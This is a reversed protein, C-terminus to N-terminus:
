IEKRIPDIETHTVVPRRNVRQPPPTPTYDETTTPALEDMYSLRLQDPRMVPRIIPPTIYCDPNAEEMAGDTYPPDVPDRQEYNDAIELLEDDDNEDAVLQYMEQGNNARRLRRHAASARLNRITDEIKLWTNSKKLVFQYFHYCLTTVFLTFSIAMSTNALVSQNKQTDKIYFTGFALTAINLLYLTELSGCFTNKYLRNNLLKWGILGFSLVGSSLIPLYIDPAMATVLNHAILAFLLLGVWYRHKPTFPAHYTDMFGIYKTNKTWKMVKSCRPFWQGFFLLVTFLGGAILIIAAAVFRPIHDPTFYQVNGDNLWVIDSTDNPYYLVRYQLAAIIFRLLKSYSLLVLTGLAAVPNRNSLLKSFLDFYKSLIIILFMLFFLYAPFMLQLLVKAQSNMGDYFCIEIGLDLNLWSIFVTLFNNLNPLFIVRNAAVINTYFILGYINGTAITINLILILAVLLIGALAFPILLLLFLNSCEKCNSTALVLSLGPECEGCLVGSRNYACQKNPNSLSIDVPKQVCYDFTCNSVVYGTGNTTNAGRIWINSELKITGNKESCNTILYDQQLVPDCDCKCEIDSQIPKLGIPCTCPLFSIDILQRSIGLNICPGKAYLEMQASSDKSFVNYELETCQNGVTQETQGEKLRGVGSTTIVSSIITANIPNRVQDVAMVSIKYKHGKRTFVYDNSYNCFLVQVPSSSISLEISPKVTKNIYDLGNSSTHYEANQSATCRDLLGGYIDAGSRTAINNTMFTNFHNIKLKPENLNITQIFCDEFITQIAGTETAGARCAGSETDDAVFIGGGYRALNSNILLSVLPKQAVDEYYNKLLYLRSSQRLFVGGGKATATNSDINIHSQTLKITTAVAYVGGGNLAINGVIETRKINSSYQFEVRSSHAYIGGGDQKAANFNIKIPENVILTGVSLFIGGGSTAGNSKLTCDSIYVTSGLDGHIAGGNADARNNTLSSYSITMSSSTVGIAGGNDASNNTFTSYSIFMSGSYNDIAGGNSGANNNTLTSDSISVTSSDVNIAGGWSGATNKTLTSDSITVRSSYIIHIAGGNWHASNKELMSDFIFVNGSTVYIAGGFNARNNALTSDSITTITGSNGGIAGGGRKASNNTLESNSISVNGSHHNDIAGGSRNATNNTLTSYSISMSGSYNDIAGGNSGANNNTLTSDSITTITGSNGGIAGGGMKASNNALISDFISVNGSYNEIAGGEYDASNNTLESNSISVNGSHHNDIAGGDRNATNNTLTSDSISVNGSYNDIAGGSRDIARNNTLTSDFISVSATHVNIAGGYKNASSNTLTCDSIIVSGFYVGIAGGSVHASNNTLTSDSIFVSGSGAYIAGGNGDASNNTVECNSINVSSGSGVHFAGGDQSAKNNTFNCWTIAVTGSIVEVAGGTLASNYNFETNNIQANNSESYFAGEDNRTFVSNTIYVDDAEVHLARGTNNIFLTSEIITTKTNVIKVTDAQNLLDFDMFYCNNIYVDNASDITFGQHSNQPGVNAGVFGLHEISLETISVFRIAGNGNFEVVTASKNQGTIQVHSFNRILLQETLVHDGPLFSLTLNNGGSLLDTQVLQELTFCTGNRYDHCLDTSDVIHYHESRTVTALTLLLVAWSLIRRSLM